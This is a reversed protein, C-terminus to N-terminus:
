TFSCRIQIIICLFSIKVTDLFIPVVHAGEVVAVYQPLFTKTAESLLPLHRPRMIRIKIANCLIDKMKTESVSLDRDLRALCCFMSATQGVYATVNRQCLPHDQALEAMTKAQVLPRLAQNVSEVSTGGHSGSSIPSGQLGNFATLDTNVLARINPKISGDTIFFVFCAHPFTQM